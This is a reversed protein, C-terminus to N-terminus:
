SPSTAGTGLIVDVARALDPADRGLLLGRIGLEGVREVDTPKDGVAFSRALDLDLERAAREIMGLKPKRCECGALHPCHYIGAFRIGRAAFIRELERHIEALRAEDFYGRAIGSQNTIIVLAFGARALRALADFVGELPVIKKPDSLYPGDEILTDDRDLFVAPKL